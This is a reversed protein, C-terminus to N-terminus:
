AAVEQRAAQLRRLFAVFAEREAIQLPRADARFAALRRESESIALAAIEREAVALRQYSTIEAETEIIDVAVESESIHAYKALHEATIVEPYTKM